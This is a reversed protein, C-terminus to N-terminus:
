VTINQVDKVADVYTCNKYNNDPNCKDLGSPVPNTAWGRTIYIHVVPLSVGNITRKLYRGHRFLDRNACPKTPAYQGYNRLKEFATRFFRNVCGRILYNDHNFNIKSTNCKRKIFNQDLQIAMKLRTAHDEMLCKLNQIEDFNPKEETDLTYRAIFYGPCYKEATQIQWRVAGDDFSDYGPSSGTTYAPYARFYKKIWTQPKYWGYYHAGVLWQTSCTQGWVNEGMPILFIGICVTIFFCKQSFGM